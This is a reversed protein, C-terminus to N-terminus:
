YGLGQLSNILATTVKGDKEINEVKIPLYGLNKACWLTSKRRSNPKHRELKVTEFKGIPTDITEDGLIEFNYVKTKGGDAVTYLLEEKGAELDYMIALQYLLKDMVNPSTPMKWSSGDISNTIKNSQWDFAIKVKRSKKGGSHDYYYDIPTLKKDDFRWRSTEIIHDKRFLSIFGTTRTESYYQYIGDETRTFKRNMKAIKAGKMLISYEAEFLNPKEEQTYVLGSFSSMFAFTVITIIRFM